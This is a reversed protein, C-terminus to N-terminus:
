KRSIRQLWSRLEDEHGTLPLETGEESGPEEALFSIEASSNVYVEVDIGGQHWELQIGGRVTPIVIPPPTEPGLYEGLLHITRIANSVQIPKASYSNWGLPLTLLEGIERVSELFPEPMPGNALVEVSVGSQSKRIVVKRPAPKPSGEAGLEIEPRALVGTSTEASLWPQALIASEALSYETEELAQVDSM